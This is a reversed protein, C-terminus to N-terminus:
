GIGNNIYDMNSVVSVLQFLNMNSYNYVFKMLSKFPKFVIKFYNLRFSFSRVIKKM